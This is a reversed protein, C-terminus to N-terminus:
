CIEPPCVARSTTRSVPVSHLILCTWIWRSTGQQAHHLIFCGTPHSAHLSFLLRCQLRVNRMADCAWCSRCSCCGGQACVGACRVPDPPCDHVTPRARVYLPNEFVLSTDAPDFLPGVSHMHVVEVGFRAAQERQHVNMTRIGVQLLRGVPQSEMIRAFPCAHSYISGDLSDYSCVTPVMRPTCPACPTNTSTM